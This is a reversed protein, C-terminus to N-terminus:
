KKLKRKIGLLGILGSGLPWVYAPIPVVNPGTQSVGYAEGAVITHGLSTPHVHDWFLLSWYIPNIEGNVM